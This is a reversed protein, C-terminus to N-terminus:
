ISTEKELVSKLKRIETVLEACEEIKHITTETMQLVELCQRLLNKSCEGGDLCKNLERRIDSLESESEGFKKQVEILKDVLELIKGSQIVVTEAEAKQAEASTKHIEAKQKPRSFLWTIFATMVVLGFDKLLTWEM